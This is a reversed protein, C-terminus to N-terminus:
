AVPEAVLDGRFAQAVAARGARDTATAAATVASRLRDVTRLTAAARRAIEQQEALPPVALALARVERSNINHVGSTSRAPLEIQQRVDPSALALVLYGPILFEADVRLRILYGAYAMGTAEKTVAATMGVLGVSGNSRVMLLDGDRLKLTDAEREGLEAFKLDATTILGTSVNPIRLIPVGDTEYASRKSTGYQLDTLLLGLPAQRWTGPLDANRTHPNLTPVAFRRNEARRRDAPSTMDTGIEEPHEERWDATLRGSCSAALV